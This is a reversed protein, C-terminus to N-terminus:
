ATIVAGAHMGVYSSLKIDSVSLASKICEISACSHTYIYAYPYNFEDIIVIKTPLFSWM